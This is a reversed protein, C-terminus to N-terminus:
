SPYRRKEQMTTIGSTLNKFFPIM